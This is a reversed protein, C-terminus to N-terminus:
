PRPRRIRLHRDEVVRLHNRLVGSVLDTGIGGIFAPVVYLGLATESSLFDDLMSM